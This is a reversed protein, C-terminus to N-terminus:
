PPKGQNAAAVHLQVARKQIEAYQNRQEGSLRGSDANLGLIAVDLQQRLVHSAAAADGDGLQELATLYINADVIFRSDTATSLFAGTFRTAAAAGVGLSGLATVTLLLILKLRTM